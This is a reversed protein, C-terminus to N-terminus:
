LRGTGSFLMDYFILYKWINYNNYIPVTRALNPMPFDILVLLM